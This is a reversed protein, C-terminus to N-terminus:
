NPKEDKELIEMQTNIWELEKELFGKFGQVNTNEYSELTGSENVFEVKDKLNELLYQMQVKAESLMSLSNKVVMNAEYEDYTGNVRMIHEEAIVCDMCKSRLSFYKGDLRKKMIKKCSPCVLPVRASEMIKSYELKRAKERELIERAQKDVGNFSVKATLEEGNILARIRRPFIKGMKSKAM